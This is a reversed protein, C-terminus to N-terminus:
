AINIPYIKNQSFLLNINSVSYFVKDLVLKLSTINLFEFEKVLTIIQL